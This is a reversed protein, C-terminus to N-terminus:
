YYVCLTRHVPFEKYRSEQGLNWLMYDLKQSSLDKGSLSLEQRILEVAHVACARLEIEEDCGSKLIEGRRIKEQLTSSYSLIGDTMLVHPVLNDAFITLDHIDSFKGYHQSNFAFNLDSVTIQARKLFWVDRDHFKFVDRYFPMKILIAVLAAASQDAASVMKVFSGDFEAALFNGLDKIARAFLQMLEFAKENKDSQRFIRCCDDASIRMLWDADCAGIKQFEDKLRAAITFYCSKESDADLHEFYGSGFNICDLVIFYALTLEHDNAVLHHGTDMTPNEALALPFRDAIGKLADYNIFVHRANKAAEACSERVLSFIRNQM